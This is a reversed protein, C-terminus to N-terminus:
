SGEPKRNATMRRRGGLLDLYAHAGEFLVGSEVEERIDTADSLVSLSPVYRAFSVVIRADPMPANVFVARQINEMTLVHCILGTFILTVTLSHRGYVYQGITWGPIM